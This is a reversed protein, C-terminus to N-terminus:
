GFRAFIEVAREHKVDAHAHGLAVQAAELGQENRIRTAATHRLQNPSWVPIDAKKCVRRVANAYSLVSYHDNIVRSTKKPNPKQNARRHTKTKAARDAAAQRPSFLYSGIPRELLFPRLIRQSKPGFHLTRELGRYANKHDDLTASWVDANRNIMGNKLGVVEGPRAATNLQLQIMAGVQRSVHPRVANVHEDFPYHRGNREWKALISHYKLDIDAAGWKGLYIRHGNLEIYATNTAKHLRLKPQRKRPM